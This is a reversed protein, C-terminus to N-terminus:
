REDTRDEILVMQGLSRGTEDTVATTALELERHQTTSALEEAGILGRLLAEAGDTPARKVRHPAWRPWSGAEARPAAAVSGCRHGADSGSASECVRGARRPRHLDARGEHRRGHGSVASARIGRESARLWGQMSGNSNRIRGGYGPGSKRSNPSAPTSRLRMRRVDPGCGTSPSASNFWKRCASSAFRNDDCRGCDVPKARLPVRNAEGPASSAQPGVLSESHPYLGSHRRHQPSVRFRTAWAM